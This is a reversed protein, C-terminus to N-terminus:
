ILENKFIFNQLEIYAESKLKYINSYNKVFRNFNNKYFEICDLNNLRDMEDVVM